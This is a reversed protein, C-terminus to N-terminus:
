YKQKTQERPASYRNSKFVRAVWLLLRRERQLVAFSYLDVHVCYLACSSPSLVVPISKKIRTHSRVLFIFPIFVCLTSPYSLSSLCRRHCMTGCFLSPPPPSFNMEIGKTPLTPFRSHSLSTVTHVRRSFSCRNCTQDYFLHKKTKTGTGHRGAAAAPPPLM